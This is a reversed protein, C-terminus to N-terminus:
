LFFGRCEFSGIRWGRYRGLSFFICNRARPLSASGARQPTGVGLRGPLGPPPGQLPLPAGPPKPRQSHAQPPLLSRPRPRKGRLLWYPLPPPAPGARPRRVEGPRDSVRRAAGQIAKPAPATAVPGQLQGGRKEEESAGVEAARVARPTEVPAVTLGAPRPAWSFAPGAAAQAAAGYDRLAGLRRPCPRPMFASDGGSGCFVAADSGSTPAMGSFRAPARDGPPLVTLAPVSDCRM